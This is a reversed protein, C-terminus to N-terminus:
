KEPFYKRISEMSAKIMKKLVPIEIDELKKVYICGVGARHKGFQQLLEQKQPFDIYLYLSIENKRPAFGVLPADGEHGTAYKYHYSGFGVIGSGWMKADYGTVEKMIRILSRCDDRKTEDAVADIFATVSATTETTKNKSKAM